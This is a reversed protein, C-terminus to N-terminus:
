ARTRELFHNVTGGCELLRWSGNALHARMVERDRRANGMWHYPAGRCPLSDIRRVYREARAYVRSFEDRYTRAAPWTEPWDAVRVLGPEMRRAWPRQSRGHFFRRCTLALAQRVPMHGWRTRLVQLIAGCDNSDAGAWSAEHVCIRTLWLADSTIEDIQAHVPAPATCSDFLMGFAILLVIALLPWTGPELGRERQGLEVEPDSWHASPPLSVNM